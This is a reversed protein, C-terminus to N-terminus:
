TGDGRHIDSGSQDLFTELVDRLHLNAQGLAGELRDALVGYGHCQMGVDDDLDIDHHLTLHGSRYPRRVMTCKGASIVVSYCLFGTEVPKRKKGGDAPKLLKRQVVGGHVAVRL